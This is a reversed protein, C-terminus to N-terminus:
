QTIEKFSNRLDKAMRAINRKVKKQGPLPERRPNKYATFFLKARLKRDKATKDTPEIGKLAQSIYHHDVGLKKELKRCSRGVKVYADILAEPVNPPFNFIPKM